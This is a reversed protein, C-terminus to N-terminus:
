VTSGVDILDVDTGLKVEVVIEPTAGVDGGVAVGDVVEGNPVVLVALGENAAVLVTLGENQLVMM